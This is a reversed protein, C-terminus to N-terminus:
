HQHALAKVPARVELQGTNGDAYRVHLTLAVQEGKQLPKKLGFLMLHMGGPALKVTEGAPLALKELRRMQMVGNNMFMTHIEVSAAAPSEAKTLTAGTASRLELYAAGVQQGPMSARAWANSAVVPEAAQAVSALLLSLVCASGAVLRQSWDPKM